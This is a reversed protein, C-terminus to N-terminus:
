KAGKTAKVSVPEPPTLTVNFRALNSSLTAAKAFLANADAVLKPMETKSESYAKMTQETPWMGGMLANKAQGLRAMPTDNAGGRGGGGGGRGFGAPAALKPALAAADKGLTELSAKLDAPVDNREGVEKSLEALRGNFPSLENAAETARIQLAHMEMAMDFLKRREVETLVVEPDSTVRVPKTDVTKGDVVLAITYM